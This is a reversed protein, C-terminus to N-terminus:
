LLRSEVWLPGECQTRDTPLIGKELWCSNIGITWGVVTALM